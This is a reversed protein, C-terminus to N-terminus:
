IGPKLSPPLWLLLHKNPRHAGQRGRAQSSSERGVRWGKWEMCLRQVEKSKELHFNAEFPRKPEVHEICRTEPGM